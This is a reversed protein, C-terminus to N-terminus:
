IAFLSRSKSKLIEAVARSRQNLRQLVLTPEHPVQLGICSVQRLLQHVRSLVVVLQSVLHMRALGADSM